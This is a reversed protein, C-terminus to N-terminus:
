LARELLLDRLGDVEDKVLGGWVHPVADQPRESVREVLGLGAVEGLCLTRKVFRGEIGSM